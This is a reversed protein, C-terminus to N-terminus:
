LTVNHAKCIKLCKDEDADLAKAAAEAEQLPKKAESVAKAAMDKWGPGAAKGRKELGEFLVKLTKLQGRATKATAVIEGMRSKSMKAQDPSWPKTKDIDKIGKILTAKKYHLEAIADRGDEMKKKIEEMDKNFTEVEVNGKAVRQKAQKLYEPARQVYEAVRDKLAITAAQGDIGRQRTALYPTLIGQSQPSLLERALAPWGARYEANATMLDHGDADIRHFCQQVVGPLHEILQVDTGTLEKKKLTNEVLDVSQKALQRQATVLQVNTAISHEATACDRQLIQAVQGDFHQRQAAYTGNQKAANVQNRLAELDTKITVVPYSM